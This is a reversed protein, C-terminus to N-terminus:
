ATLHSLLVITEPLLWGGLDIVRGARADAEAAGRLRTSLEGGEAELKAIIGAFAQDKDRPTLQARLRALGERPWPSASLIDEADMAPARTAIYALAAAAALSAVGWTLFRRRGLATRSTDM